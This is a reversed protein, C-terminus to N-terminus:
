WETWSIIGLLRVQEKPEEQKPPESKKVEPKSKKVEPKSEPEPKEERKETEHKQSQSSQRSRPNADDMDIAKGTEPDKILIARSRRPEKAKSLFFM